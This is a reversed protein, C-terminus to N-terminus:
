SSLKLTSIIKNFVGRESDSSIKMIIELSSGKVTPFVARIEREGNKAVFGRGNGSVVGEILTGKYGDVTIIKQKEDIYSIQNLISPPTVLNVVAIWGTERCHLANANGQQCIRTYDNKSYFPLGLTSDGAIDSPNFWQSPYKFQFRFKVGHDKSNYEDWQSVDQIDPAGCSENWNQVCSEKKECWFFGAANSCGNKDKAESVIQRGEDQLSIDKQISMSPAQTMEQNKKKEVKWVFVGVTLAIVILIITGLLTSVKQNKM